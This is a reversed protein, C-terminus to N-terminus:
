SCISTDTSNIANFSLMYSELLDGAGFVERTVMSRHYEGCREV